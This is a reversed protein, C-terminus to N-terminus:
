RNKRTAQRLGQAIRKRALLVGALTIPIFASPEPVTQQEISWSGSGTVYGYGVGGYVLYVSVTKDPPATSSFSFAQPPTGIAGYADWSVAWGECPSTPFLSLLLFSAAAGATGQLCVDTDAGGTIYPDNASATLDFTFGNWEVLFDTFLPSTPDYKFSGSTPLTPGGTFAITYPIPAAEAIPAGIAACLLLPIGFCHRM